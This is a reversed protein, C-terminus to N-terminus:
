TLEQCKCPVKLNALLSVWGRWGCLWTHTTCSAMPLLSWTGARTGRGGRHRVAESKERWRRPFTFMAVRSNTTHLARGGENSSTDRVVGSWQCMARKKRRVNTEVQFQRAQKHMREGALWFTLDPLALFLGAKHPHPPASTGMLVWM